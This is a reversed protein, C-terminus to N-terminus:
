GGCPKDDAIWGIRKDRTGGDDDDNIEVEVGISSGINPKIGLVQWPIWAELLYGDQVARM